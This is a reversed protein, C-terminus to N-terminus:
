IQTKERCRPPSRKGLCPDNIIPEGGGEIKLRRDLGGGGGGNKKKVGSVEGEGEIKNGTMDTELIQGVKHCWLKM